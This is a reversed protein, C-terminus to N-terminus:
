EQPQGPVAQAAVCIRVLSLQRRLASGAVVGCAPLIGHLNIVGLSAKNEGPRVFPDFAALAVRLHRCGVALEVDFEAVQFERIARGAVTIRVAPCKLCGALSAVGQGSPLRGRCRRYEIMRAAPERKGSFVGSQGTLRAMFLAIELQGYGMAQTAVTVPLARVFVLKGAPGVATFTGGTVLHLSELRGSEVRCSVACCAKRQFSPMDPETAILAMFGPGGGDNVPNGVSMAGFAMHVFM